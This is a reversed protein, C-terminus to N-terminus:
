RIQELTVALRAPTGPTVAVDQTLPKYGALEISISHRGFLVEPIQVPTVGAARGDITVRAGRPRSDVFVSGKASAPNATDVGAELQVTLTQSPATRSLTIRDTRPVFGPRAVQLTHAGLSLDRITIPTEGHLRGDVRVIAGSPTSRVVIRGRVDAVRSATGQPTSPRAEPNQQLDATPSSPRPAPTVAPAPPKATPESVIPVDTTTRSGPPAATVQSVVREVRRTGYAYGGLAGVLLSAVAASVIAAWPYSSPPDLAPSRTSFIAQSGGFGVPSIKASGAGPPPVMVPVPAPPPEPEPAAVIPLEPTNLLAAFESQIAREPEESREPLFESEAVGNDPANVPPLIVPTRAVAPPTLQQPPPPPVASVPPRPADIPTPHWTRPTPLVPEAAPKSVPKEHPRKEPQASEQTARLVAPAATASAPLIAADGRAVAELANVFSTANEYRDEPREALAAGIVKRINVRQEPSLEPALTGDQEGPGLPRRGTLLEHAIAGLSYVDARIDWREGAVREPATYPRRVPPRAGISELASVIGFGTIRTDDTGSVIVDRPHLAGHGRGEDWSADIARAIDILVPMSRGLGPTFDRLAVDLSEGSAYEMAVFPSTGELGADLVRVISPHPTPHLALRRLAEAFRAVDEPVLDLKFAKVAVLRDVQPEYTRFVPGLVGSGIQHLM